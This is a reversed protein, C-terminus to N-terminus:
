IFADIEDKKKVSFEISSTAQPKVFEVDIQSQVQGEQNRSKVEIDSDGTRIPELDESEFDSVSLDQVPGVFNFPLGSLKAHEGLVHRLEPFRERSYAKWAFDRLLLTVVILLLAAWSELLSFTFSFVDYFQWFMLVSIFLSSQFILAFIPWSFFIIVFCFASFITWSGTEMAVKINAVICVVTFLLCGMVWLDEEAPIRFCYYILVYALIAHYWGNFVYGWFVKFNLLQFDMGLEYLQPFQMLYRDPLDKDFLVTFLISNTFVLNYFEVAMNLYLNQGSYGNAESWLMQAVIMIINKYLILIVLKSTRRYNNRGHLLLLRKLFKFRGLAFDAANVAQMGELGSIGIGVDASQIMGVDNAGDGVALLRENRLHRRVLKVVEAKQKPSVRCCVVAKCKLSLEVFLQECRAKKEEQLIIQLISGDIVLSYMKEPIKEFDAKSRELLEILEDQSKANDGNIVIIEMSQDILQCAWAINIATEQKDGTLIWIKIGALSLSKITEPVEEQLKDEIATAGLLELNNEIESMLQDILNEEKNKRKEQEVHNSLVIKYRTQWDSFESESIQKFAVTLTRLGDDAFKVLHQTTSHAITSNRSRPSLRKFIESDAGKCYLMIGNTKRDRVIVSARKRDSTFELTELLDFTQIIGVQVNEVSSEKKMSVEYSHRDLIYESPLAEKIIITRGGEGRGLFQFGMESAAVVLAQDDPSSASLRTKGTAIGHDDRINEILVEHCLSLALFFEKGGPIANKTLQIGFGDEVFNMFKPHPASEISTLFNQAMKAETFKGERELAAVGIVTTGQGYAKGLISMKRFEMVNNTLTGTKDSFIYSIQGITDCLDLNRVIARHEFAEGSVPDEGKNIMGIDWWILISECLRLIKMSVYLSIPIMNDILLFFTCASLFYDGITFHGTKLFVRSWPDNNTWNAALGAGLLCLIIILLLFGLLMRNITRDLSSMKSKVAVMSQLVKTDHGTNLVLAYVYDTSRLVCGRLLINKISIPLSSLRQSSGDGRVFQFHCTGHFSDLHANPTECLVQGSFSSVAADMAQEKTLGQVKMRAMSHDEIANVTEILAQKLKLNTEGDLSKTEVYCVGQPPYDSSALILCDCPIPERNRIKLIDGVRIDSWKKDFTEGKVVIRCASSNALADDRHRQIDEIANIIAEFTLVVALPFASLPIGNSISIAPISQMISVVLFYTNAFKQLSEFIFRIIFMIPNPYRSTTVTNDLYGYEKNNASGINVLKSSSTDKPKLILRVSELMRKSIPHNNKTQMLDQFSERDEDTVAVITNFEM